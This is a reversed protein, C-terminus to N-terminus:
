IICTVQSFQYRKSCVVAGDFSLSAREPPALVATEPPVSEMRAAQWVRWGLLEIAAMEVISTTDFFGAVAVIADARTSAGLRKVSVIVQM